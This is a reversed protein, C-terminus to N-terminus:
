ITSMHPKLNYTFIPRQAHDHQSSSKLLLFLVIFSSAAVEDNKAQEGYYLVSLLLSILPTLTFTIYPSITSSFTSTITFQDLVCRLWPEPNDPSITYLPPVIMYCSLLAYTIYFPGSLTPSTIVVDAPSSLQLTTIWATPGIQPYFGSQSSSYSFCATMLERFNASSPRYSIILRGAM